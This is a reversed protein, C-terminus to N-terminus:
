NSGEIYDAALRLRTPDDQFMGLGRNCAGCLLGRVCEGCSRRGECCAHDHDVHCGEGIEDGCVACRGQQQLLLADWQEVTINFKHKLARRRHALRHKEPDRAKRELLVAYECVKCNGRLRTGQGASNFESIPKTEGCQTCTRM